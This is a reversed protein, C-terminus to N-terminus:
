IKKRFYNLFFGGTRTISLNIMGTQSAARARALEQSIVAPTSRSKPYNRLEMTSKFESTTQSPVDIKLFNIRYINDIQINQTLFSIVKNLPYLLNNLSIKSFQLM